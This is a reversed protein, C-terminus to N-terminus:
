NERMWETKKIQKRKLKLMWKSIIKYRQLKCVTGNALTRRELDLVTGKWSDPVKGHKSSLKKTCKIENSEAYIRIM